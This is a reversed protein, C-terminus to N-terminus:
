YCNIFYDLRPAPASLTVTFGVPQPISGWELIINFIYLKINIYLSLNINENEEGQHRPFVPRQTRGSSMSGSNSLFHTVSHRLM